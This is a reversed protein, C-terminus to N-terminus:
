LFRQANELDTPDDIDLWRGTTFLVRIDTGNAVLRMFLTGLDAKELSGDARMEALVAKVQLAGSESLKTLGIWEGHIEGAELDRGIKVLSVVDDELYDHTFPRNTQVLDRVHSKPDPDRERWLADVALVVDGETAILQSLMYHRFLIDGYAILCEGKLYKEAAALTAAEGTMLYQDNDVYDVSPLNVTEKKYGRVVTIERIKEENFTAIMRRLLPQGRVDIMCKPMHETLGGLGSGRSAALVIARPGSKTVPLYRKEAEALEANQALGFIDEVTAIENEVSGLFQERHIRRSVERMAAISARVNHNAWIVVSIQAKRFEETPTKYYTTPVILVPARNAWEEMFALIETADRRKSHILIGDAGAQHYAEARKLAEEM